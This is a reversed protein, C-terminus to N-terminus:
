DDAVIKTQAGRVQLTMFAKYLQPQPNTKRADFIFTMGAERIERRSVSFVFLCILVFSYM